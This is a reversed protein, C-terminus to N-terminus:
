PNMDKYVTQGVNLRNIAGLTGFKQALMLDANPNPNLMSGGYNRIGGAPQVQYGEYIPTANWASVLSPDITVEARYDAVYQENCSQKCICLALAVVATFLLIACAPNNCLM